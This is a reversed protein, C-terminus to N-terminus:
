QEFVIRVNQNFSITPISLVIGIIWQVSICLTIWQKRRFFANTHYVISCLRNVSVVLFALPVQFTCMMELYILIFCTTEEALYQPHFKLLLYYLMWYLNSCVTAICLNVTFINNFNRFRRIFVIPLSYILALLITLIIFFIQIYHIVDVLETM